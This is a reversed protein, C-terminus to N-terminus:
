KMLKITCVAPCNLYTTYGNNFRHHPSNAFDIISWSSNQNNNTMTQCCLCNENGCPIMRYRAQPQEDNCFLGPTSPSPKAGRFRCTKM